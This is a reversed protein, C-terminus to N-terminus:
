DWWGVIYDVERVTVRFNDMNKRAYAIADEETGFEATRYHRYQGTASVFDELTVEYKEIEKDYSTRAGFSM